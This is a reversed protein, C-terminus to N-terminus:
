PATQPVNKSRAGFQEIMEVERESTGRIGQRLRTELFLGRKAFRKIVLAAAEQLAVNVADQKLIFRHDAVVLGDATGPKRFTVLLYDGDISLVPAVFQQSGQIILAALDKAPM